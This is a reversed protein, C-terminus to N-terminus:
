VCCRSLLVSLLVIATRLGAVTVLPQTLLCLVFCSVSAPLYVHLCDCPLCGLHVASVESTGQASVCSVLCGSAGADWAAGFHQKCLEWSMGLGCHYCLARPLLAGLVVLGVRCGSWSPLPQWGM